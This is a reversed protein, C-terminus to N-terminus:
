HGHIEHAYRPLIATLMTLWDDLNRNQSESIDTLESFILPIAGLSGMEASVEEDEALQALTWALHWQLRVNKTSLSGVLVPVGDYVKISERAEVESCLLRLFSASLKQSLLDSDKLLQLCQDTANTSCLDTRASNSLEVLMALVQLTAQVVVMDRATLLRLVVKHLGLDAMQQIHEENNCLKQCISTAGGGVLKKM